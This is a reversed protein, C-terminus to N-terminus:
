TFPINSYITKEPFLRSTAELIWGTIKYKTLPILRKLIKEDSPKRKTKYITCGAKLKQEQYGTKHEGLGFHINKKKRCAYRILENYLKQSAKYKQNKKTSGGISAYVNDKNEFFLCYAILEDKYRILLIKGEETRIAEKFFKKPFFFSNHERMQKRYHKYAERLEEQTPNEKVEAIHKYKRGQRLADKFSRKYNARAKEYSKKHFIAYEILSPQSSKYNDEELVQLYAKQNRPKQTSIGINKKKITYRGGEKRYPMATAKSLFDAYQQTTYFNNKFTQRFM